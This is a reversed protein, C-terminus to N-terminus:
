TLFSSVLDLCPQEPVRSKFVTFNFKAIQKAKQIIASYESEPLKLIGDVVQIIKEMRIQPDEEIDYSEDWLESFTKYGCERLFQLLGPQGLIIFPAKFAIPKYTKETVFFHSIDTTNKADVLTETVIHIDCNRYMDMNFTNWHNYKFFNNATYMNNMHQDEYEEVVDKVDFETFLPLKTLFLKLLKQESETINQREFFRHSDTINDRILYPSLNLLQEYTVEELSICINNFTYNNKKWLEYCLYYRHQRQKANLLLLRYKKYQKKSDNFHVYMHRMYFFYARSVATEFYPWFIVKLNFPLPRINYSNSTLINIKNIDLNIEDCFLKLKNYHKNTYFSVESVDSIILLCRGSNINNILDPTLLDKLFNEQDKDELLKIIYRPSLAYIFKKNTAIADALLMRQVNFKKSLITELLLFFDYKTITCTFQKGDLFTFQRKVDDGNEYTYANAYRNYYCGSEKKVPHKSDHLKNYAIIITDHM